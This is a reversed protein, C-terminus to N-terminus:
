HYRIKLSGWTAGRAHVASNPCQHGM